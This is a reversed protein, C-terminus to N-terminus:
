EKVARYQVRFDEMRNELMNHDEMYYIINKILNVVTRYREVKNGHIEFHNFISEMYDDENIWDPALALIQDILGHMYQLNHDATLQIDETIGQHPLIYVSNNLERIKLLTEEALTWDQYFVLKMSAIKDDSFAADALYAVDDPTVFGYQGAIHGPLRMRKFTVGEVVIDDTGDDMIVDPQIIMYQYKAEIISMKIRPWLGRLTENSRTSSSDLQTEYIKAGYYERFSNACGAHDTHAHSIVIAKVKYGGEDLLHKIKQDQLVYGCDLMIIDKDKIVYFPIYATSTKICYTNGKVQVIESM